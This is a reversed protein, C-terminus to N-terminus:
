ATVDDSSGYEGRASYTVRMEKYHKATRAIAEAWAFGAGFAVFWVPLEPKGAALRLDNMDRPSGAGREVIAGCCERVYPIPDGDMLLPNKAIVALGYTAALRVAGLVDDVAYADPNDLEVYHYGQRVAREFQQSLNENWGDGTPDIEGEDYEKATDSEDRYPGFRGTNHEDFLNCYKVAVGFVPRVSIDYGVEIVEGDRGHGPEDSGILYRLPLGALAPRPAPEMPMPKAKRRWLWAIFSM